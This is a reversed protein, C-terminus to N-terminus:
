AFVGLSRLKQEIVEKTFPKMIYANAGAELALDMQALETETTVMCIRVNGFRDDSRVTRVMDLGNMVPMNWDCLVINFEPGQQLCTIAELGNVAESVEFGFERLAKGVIIRMARSDDVVLARPM